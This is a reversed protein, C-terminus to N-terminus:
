RMRRTRSVMNGVNVSRASPRIPLFARHGDGADCPQRGYQDREDRGKQQQEGPVGAVGAQPERHRDRGRDVQQLGAAGAGAGGREVRRRRRRARERAMGAARAARPRPPQDRGEARRSLEAMTLGPAEAPGEDPLFAPDYGFGREGRPAAALRGSCRGEFLREVGRAPTWTPSRACTSWPARRRRRGCCSRWTRRIARTSARTARRACGRLVASRRRPSGPTM